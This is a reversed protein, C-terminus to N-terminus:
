ASSCPRRSAATPTARRWSNSCPASAYARADHGPVAPAKLVTRSKVLMVPPHRRASRTSGRGAPAARRRSRPRSGMWGRGAPCRRRLEGFPQDLADEVQARLAAAPAPSGAVLLVDEPAMGQGVLWAVREVLVRTKGTGPGGIILYMGGKLLGGNLIMDLGLIGTSMRQPPEGLGEM